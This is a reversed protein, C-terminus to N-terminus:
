LSHGNAAVSFAYGSGSEEEYRVTLPRDMRVVGIGEGVWCKFDRPVALMHYAIYVGLGFEALALVAAFVLSIFAFRTRGPWKTSHGARWIASAPIPHLIM